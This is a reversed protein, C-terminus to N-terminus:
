KREPKRIMKDFAAWSDGRKVMTSAEAENFNRWYGFGDRYLYWIADMDAFENWVKKREAALLSNFEYVSLCYHPSAFHRDIWAQQKALKTHLSEITANATSLAANLNDVDQAMRFIPHPPEFKADEPADDFEKAIGALFNHRSTLRAIEADKGSITANATSLLAHQNKWSEDDIRATEASIADAIAKNM